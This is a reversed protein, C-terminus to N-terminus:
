SSMQANRTAALKASDNITIIIYSSYLNQMRVPTPQDITKGGDIVIIIRQISDFWKIIVIIRLYEENKKGHNKTALCSLFSKKSMSCSCPCQPIPSSISVSCQNKHWRLCLWMPFKCLSFITKAKSVVLRRERSRDIRFKLIIPTRLASSFFLGNKKRERTVFCIFHFMFFQCETNTQSGFTTRTNHKHTHIFRKFVGSVLLFLIQRLYVWTNTSKAYRHWVNGDCACLVRWCAGRM